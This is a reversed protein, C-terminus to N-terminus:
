RHAVDYLTHAVARGHYLGRQYYNHVDEKHDQEERRTAASLGWRM